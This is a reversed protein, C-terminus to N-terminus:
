VMNFWWKGSTEMPKGYTLGGNEMPKWFLDVDLGVSVRGRKLTALHRAEDQLQAAAVNWSGGDYAVRSAFPPRHGHAGIVAVPFLMFVQWLFLPNLWSYCPSEGYNCHIHNWKSEIM